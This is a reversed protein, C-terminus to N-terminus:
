SFECKHLCKHLSTHLCKHLCTYLGGGHNPWTGATLAITHTIDTQFPQGNLAVAVKAEGSVMGYRPVLLM